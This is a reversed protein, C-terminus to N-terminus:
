CHPSWGMPISPLHPGISPRRQDVFRADNLSGSDRASRDKGATLSGGFMVYEACLFHGHHLVGVGSDEHRIM